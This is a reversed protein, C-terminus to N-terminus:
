DFGCLAAYRVRVLDSPLMSMAAAMPTTPVAPHHHAHNPPILIAGHNRQISGFHASTPLADHVNSACDYHTNHTHNVHTSPLVTTHLNMTFHRGSRHTSKSTKPPHLTCCFTHLPPARNPFSPSLCLFACFNLHGTIGFGAYNPFNGRTMSINAISHFNTVM